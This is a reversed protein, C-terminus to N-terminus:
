KTKEETEEEIEIQTNKKETRRHTREEEVEIEPQHPETRENSTEGDDGCVECKKESKKEKTIQEKKQTEEKLHKEAVTEEGNRLGTEEEM